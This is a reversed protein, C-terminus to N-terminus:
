RGCCRRYPKGSGCPCSARGRKRRTRRHLDAVPYERSRFGKQRVVGLLGHEEHLHRAEAEDEPTWKTSDLLVLDESRNGQWARDETAIGVVFRAAPFKHKAVLCYCQLLQLRKTRDAQEDLTTNRRMALFVYVVSDAHAPTQAEVRVSWPEHSARRVVEKLSSALSRRQVRNESALLRLAAESEALTHSATFFLRNSRVSEAVSDILKDWVYSAADAERKAAFHDSTIHREWHGEPVVLRAPAPPLGFYHRQGDHHRLYHALLEEEGAAVVRQQTLLAERDELYQVFDPATDLHALVADLSFDDFVHVFPGDELVHGVVFPTISDRPKYHENGVVSTNIMLSGTGGHLAICRQGAGHAVVVLHIRAENTPIAIPIRHSCLRDTFIRTPYSTIWRHAGAAQKAAGLIATKYWRSWDLSLDGTAPFAIHKDSFIVVHSGFVVLLDCLEKAIFSKEPSGRQQFLNPWCWMRLVARRALAVLYKESSTTGDSM